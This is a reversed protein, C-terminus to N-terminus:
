KTWLKLKKIKNVIEKFDEECEEIIDVCYFYQLLKNFNGLSVIESYKKDNLKLILLENSSAECIMDYILQKYDNDSNEKKMNIIYVHHTSILKLKHSLLLIVHNKLLDDLTMIFLNFYLM